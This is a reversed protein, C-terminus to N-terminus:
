IRLYISLSLCVGGELRARDLPLEGDFEEKRGFYKELCWLVSEINVQYSDGVQFGDLAVVTLDGQVIEVRRREGRRAPPRGVKRTCM